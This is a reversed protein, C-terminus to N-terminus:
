DQKLRPLTTIQTQAPPPLLKHQCMSPQYFTNVYFPFRVDRRRMIQSVPSRPSSLTSLDKGYPCRPFLPWCCIYEGTHRMLLSQVILFAQRGASCGSPGLYYVAGWPASLLCSNKGYIIVCSQLAKVPSYVSGFLDFSVSSENTKVTFTEPQVRTENAHM